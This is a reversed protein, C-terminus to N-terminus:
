PPTGKWQIKLISSGMVEADKRGKAGTSWSSNASLSQPYAFALTPACLGQPQAPEHAESHVSSGLIRGHVHLLREASSTGQPPVRIVSATTRFSSAMAFPSPRTQPACSAPLSTAACRGTPRVVTLRQQTALDVRAEEIGDQLLARSFPEQRVLM